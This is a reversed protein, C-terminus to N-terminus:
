LLGPIYKLSIRSDSKYGKMLAPYRLTKKNGTRLETINPHTPTPTSAQEIEEGEM